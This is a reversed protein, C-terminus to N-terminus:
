GVGLLTLLKPKFTSALAPAFSAIIQGFNGSGTSVTFKLSQSGTGVTANSDGIAQSNPTARLTSTGGDVNNDTNDGYMILWCNSAVVTTSVTLGTTGAVGTATGHNFSDPQGSQKAGTYSASYTLWFDSPASSASVSVSNTGTAPGVLVFLYSWRGSPTQVKDVLTMSVSNYTASPALDTTSVTVGVFLILNSGTCTHNWSFSTGGSQSNRGTATDFAIAM